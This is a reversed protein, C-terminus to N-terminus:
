VYTLLETLSDIIVNPHMEALQGRRHYGTTIGFSVVGAKQAAMVDYITDGIMLAQNPDIRYERIINEIMLSKDEVSGYCQLFYKKLDYVELEHELHEAPHKSVVFLAKRNEFLHTLTASADPYMVPHIGSSKITALAHRYANALYEASRHVGRSLFDEHASAKTTHIWQEYPVPELDHDKMMQVNAAYVPLRDDSIVGSWDFIV